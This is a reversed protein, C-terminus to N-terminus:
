PKVELSKEALEPVYKLILQIIKSSNSHPYKKLYTEADLAAETNGDAFAVAFALYDRRPRSSRPIAARFRSEGILSGLLGWADDNQPAVALLKLVKKLDLKTGDQVDSRVEALLYAELNTHRAELESLPNTYDVEEKPGWTYSVSGSPKNQIEGTQYGFALGLNKYNVGLGYCIDDNYGARLSVFRGLKYELGYLLRTKSDVARLDILGTM